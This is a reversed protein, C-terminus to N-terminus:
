TILVRKGHAPEFKTKKSVPGTIKHTLHIMYNVHLNNKHFHANGKKVTKNIEM